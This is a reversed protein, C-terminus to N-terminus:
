HSKKRAEITQRIQAVVYELDYPKKLFLQEVCRERAADSQKADGSALIVPLDTCFQKWSQGWGRRACHMAIM